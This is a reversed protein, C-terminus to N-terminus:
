KKIKLDKKNDSNGVYTGNTAYFDKGNTTYITQECGM